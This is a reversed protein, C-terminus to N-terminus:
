RLNVTATQVDTEFQVRQLVLRQYDVRAIDGAKLRESSVDLLKNYFALNERTLALIAKQQLTQVFAGRLNFLLNREQDAYQSATIETGQQASERRLERKHQREHLYTISAAPFAYAFPSYTNPGGNPSPQTSFFNMQDFSGTLDPNPRLYATVEQARSEDIGIRAARLTPNNQEFRGRVEEWTLSTSQGSVGCVFCEALILGLLCRGFCCEFNWM